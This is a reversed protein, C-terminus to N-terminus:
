KKPRGFILVRHTAPKFSRECVSVSVAFAHPSQRTSGSGVSGLLVSACGAAKRHLIPERGRRRRLQRQRRWCVRVCVSAPVRVRAVGVCHSRQQAQTHAHTPTENAPYLRSLRSLSLTLAHSPTPSRSLSLAPSCSLSLSCCYCTCFLMFATTATTTKANKDRRKAHTLQHQQQRAAVAETAPKAGVGNNHNYNNNIAAHTELQEFKIGILPSRQMKAKAFALESYAGGVKGNDSSARRQLQIPQCPACTASHTPPHLHHHLPM